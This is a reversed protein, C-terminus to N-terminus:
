LHADCWEKIPENGAGFMETLDYLKVNKFYAVDNLSQKYIGIKFDSYNYNSDINFRTSYFSWDSNVKTGGVRWYTNFNIGCFTTQESDEVGPTFKIYTCLYYIHEPNISPLQQQVGAVQSQGTNTAIIKLVKENNEVIIDSTAYGAYQITWGELGNSFDGNTVLNFASTPQCVSVIDKHGTSDGGTGSTKAVGYIDSTTAKRVQTEYETMVINNTPINNTEDVGWIQGRLNYNSNYCHAVFVKESELLITSIAFGSYITNVMRTDSFNTITTGSIRSIIGYLSYGTGLSHVTLVDGNSLLVSSTQRSAYTEERIMTDTGVTINTGSITCVVGYFYFNDTYTHAIFVKDESLAVASSCRGTYVATSIQKTAGATITTGSITCVLGNLYYSSKDRPHSIFVKGSTLLTVSQSVASHVASTCIATDTGKTITTGSITCVVGYLYRNSTDYGHTVLVKNQEVLTLTLEYQGAYSTSVISIDAGATITTGSITCVMGYLYRNTMDYRYVIFVKNESLAEVAFNGGSASNTSLQTEAGCIITGGEITCVIGFMYSDSSGDGGDSFVIFVKNDTLKCSKIDWGAYQKSSIVTDVSTETTRSAVGNIFEVFDGASINEGAYVYYDQIIGNISMGGQQQGYIKAIGM